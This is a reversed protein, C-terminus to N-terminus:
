EDEISQLDPKYEAEIERKYLADWNIDKFFPHAMVEEVDGNSGM